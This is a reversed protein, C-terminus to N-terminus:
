PAPTKPQAHVTGSMEQIGNRYVTGANAGVTEYGFVDQKWTGTMVGDARALSFWSDSREDVGFASDVIRQEIFVEVRAGDETYSWSDVQYDITSGSEILCTAEGNPAFTLEYLPLTKSEDSYVIWTGSLSGSAAPPTQGREDSGGTVYFAGVTVIIALLLLGILVGVWVRRDYHREEVRDIEAWRDAGLGTRQMVLDKEASEEDILAQEHASLLDVYGAMERVEADLDAKDRDTRTHKGNRGPDTSDEHKSM